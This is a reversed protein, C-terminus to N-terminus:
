KKELIERETKLDRNLAAAETFKAGYRARLKEINRERAEEPTFGLVNLVNTISSNLMALQEALADVNLQKGYMVSKKLLDIAKGVSIVMDPVAVRVEFEKDSQSLFALDEKTLLPESYLIVDPDLRLEDIMIGIYWLLDGMEEKMNVTDIEETNTAEQIESLESALGIAGHLLRINRVQSFREQLPTFDRSETILVNKIYDKPSM